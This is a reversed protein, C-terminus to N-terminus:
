LSSAAEHLADWGEGGQERGEGEGTGKYLKEMQVSRLLSEVRIESLSM